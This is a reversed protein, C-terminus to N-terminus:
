LVLPHAEDRSPWNAHEIFGLLGGDNAADWVEGSDMEVRVAFRANRGNGDVQALGFMLAPHPVTDRARIQFGFRQTLRLVQIRGHSRIRFAQLVEPWNPSVTTKMTALSVCNIVSIYFIKKFKVYFDM